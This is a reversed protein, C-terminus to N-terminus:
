DVSCAQADAAKNRLKQFYAKLADLEDDTLDELGICSNRAKRTRSILEDLKLQVAKTDRNVTNQILFVALYTVITTGTNIVLQWSTSFHFFPGSILWGLILCLNVGFMWPSGLAAAAMCAFKRFIDKMSIVISRFARSEVYAVKGMCFLNM